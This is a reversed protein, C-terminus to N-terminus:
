VICAAPSKAAQMTGYQPRRKFGDSFLGHKSSRRISYLLEQDNLRSHCRRLPGGLTCRQRKWGCCGRPLPMAGFKHRELLYRFSGQTQVKYVTWPTIDLFDLLQAVLCHKYSLRQYTIQVYRLFSSGLRCCDTKRKYTIKTHTFRGVIMLRRPRGSRGEGPDLVLLQVADVHCGAVVGAKCIAIIDVVKLLQFRLSLM